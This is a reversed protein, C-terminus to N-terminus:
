KPPDIILLRVGTITAGLPPGVIPGITLTFAVISAIWNVANIMNKAGRISRKWEEPSRKELNLLPIADFKEFLKFVKKLRSLLASQTCLFVFEDLLINQISFPIKSQRLGKQLNRFGMILNEPIREYAEKWSFQLFINKSRMNVEEINLIDKYRLFGGYFHEFEVQKTETISMPVYIKPFIKM